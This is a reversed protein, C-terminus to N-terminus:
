SGAGEALRKRGAANLNSAMGERTPECVDQPSSLLQPMLSSILEIFKRLKLPYFQLRPYVLSIPVSTGSWNPLIRVLRGSQIDAHVACKSILVAGVGLLAAARTALVHDAIFSPSISLGRVNGHQDQLDIKNHCNTSLAVWPLKSLDEPARIGGHQSLLSPAVAIIRQVEGLQRAIVLEDKVAGVRIACDVADEAFRVSSESLRWELRAAPYTKLYQAAIEILWEQGLVSPVVVRLLGSPCGTEGRLENEFTELGEVLKRAYEYYRRGSETLSMRHTTRNLLQMGLHAELMRLQRSVTPQSTNLQKAAMSLSGASLIRVFTSMLTLQNSNGKAM